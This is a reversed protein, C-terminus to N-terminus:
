ARTFFTKVRLCPREVLYYSAAAAVFVLAVTVAAVLMGTGPSPLWRALLGPAVCYAPVHWLYLRYSIRSVALLPRASLGTRLWGPPAGILGAITLAILV